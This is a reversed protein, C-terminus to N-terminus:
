YIDEDDFELQALADEIEENSLEENIADYYPDNEDTRATIIQEAKTDIQDQIKLISAIAIFVIGAIGVAIASRNLWLSRSNPKVVPLDALDEREIRSMLRSEFDQFYNDPVLFPNHENDILRKEM